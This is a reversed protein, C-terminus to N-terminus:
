RSVPKGGDDATRQVEASKRPAPPKATAKAAAKPAKTGSLAEKTFNRQSM